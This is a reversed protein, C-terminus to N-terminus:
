KCNSNIQSLFDKIKGAEIIFLIYLRKKNKFAQFDLGLDIHTYFPFVPRRLLLDIAANTVLISGDKLCQPAIFGATTNLFHCRFYSILDILHSCSFFLSISKM